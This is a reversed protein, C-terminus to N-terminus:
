KCYSTYSVDNDRFDILVNRILDLGGADEVKKCFETRVLLASLTLMVDSMLPEDNKFETFLNNTLHLTLNTKNASTIRM